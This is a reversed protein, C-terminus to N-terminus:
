LIRLDLEIDAMRDEVFSITKKIGRLYGRLESIEEALDDSPTALNKKEKKILSRMSSQYHRHLRQKTAEYTLKQRM